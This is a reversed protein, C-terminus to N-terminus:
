QDVEDSPEPDDPVLAEELTGWLREAEGRPTRGDVSLALLEKLELAGFALQHYRDAADKYAHDGSVDGWADRVGRDEALAFSTGDFLPLPMRLGEARIAVLEDLAAAALARRETPDDGRVRWALATPELSKKSEARAVLVARRQLTPEAVCLAFLDIALQIRWHPKPRGYSVRVPGAGGGEVCGSVTGVLRVDDSLTLDVPHAATAPRCVDLNAAADLLLVVESCLEDLEAAALARPPLLGRARAADLVALVDSGAGAAGDRLGDSSCRQLGSEVLQRGIWARDLSGLSTPLENDPEDERDPLVVDLRRRFFSRVPHAFFSPLEALEVVEEADVPLPRDILVGGAETSTETQLARAGELATPDFSTPPSGPAAAFNAPDFAQRPHLTIVRSAGEPDRLATPTTHLTAALVEVLEDLVVAEPVKANTRVDTSSFTVVFADRASGLAALLEARAEGRPERDGAMPSHRLLDDGRDRTSPVAESDLGLVCVVRHPVSQLLAPGAVVISGFGM